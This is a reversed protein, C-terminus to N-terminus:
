ASVGSVRIPLHDRQGLWVVRATNEAILMIRQERLAILEAWLAACEVACRVTPLRWRALDTIMWRSM